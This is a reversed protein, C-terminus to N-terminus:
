KKKVDYTQLGMGFVSLIGLALGAPIGQEKMIQYIDNMSLPMLLKEPIQKVTVKDGVYDRGALLDVSTGVVPSLKSRLFRALVDASNGTGFPVKEGRIPLLKGGTTKTKGSALRSTLVTVQSIGALPDLRIKGMRIKGFDSSRPDVEVRGGSSIALSYVVGLGLLFRAYEKAIMMRTQMSGRYLPQGAALQFRSAVYRPAFFTTNLGVLANEKAGLNGRGTAVNVFNAVANLEIPTPKGNKSLTVVMADFSDARLKNLFTTYARQSAAVGPVKDAWRSMYVEEMQSLKQGHEAIYLKSKEYLPYNPRNRIELDVAFQGKESKLAKFMAPLSQVGRVPHAFVIFAGQRLVASLDMSTKISRSLNIAEGIGGGIKQIVSRNALRDRMVAEHYARIIKDLRYKLELAQADLEIERKPKVSFDKTALKQELEAMRNTMRTKLSQLAIQDPTKKPNAEQRLEDVFAKWEDRRNRAEVLEPTELIGPKEKKSKGEIAEKAYNGAAKEAARVAMAVRQEPFMERKKVTKLEGPKEPAFEAPREELADRVSALFDRQKKLEKAKADYEIGKGKPVQEGTEIENVIDSIQNTLRTKIADLSSKLQTEPDTTQIGYKKKAEEVQKILRREEDSPIRREVGTKLPPQRKQLDELKSIQQMQGKLDRLQVMVEEKSLLKYRGYGSIADMIDRKSIEFGANKVATHISDVLAEVTIFGSQVRNKAMKGLIVVATPDLGINLQGGLAKNLETVLGDFETSLEGKEIVRKVQRKELAVENKIREVAKTSELQTIKDGYEKIKANAEEIQKSLNEFKVRMEPTVPKGTEVRQKQLMATLSYDEDIMMKRAQLGAGQEYGTFRAATDNLNYVEEADALRVRAEAEAITDGKAKEVADMAAQHETKIRQRDITLIATEEPTIPRPKAVLEEALIRPDVEGTEIRRKGEDFAVTNSRRIEVEIESLGRAEREALTQANKIGTPGEPKALDLPDYIPKKEEKIIGLPDYQPVAKVEEIPKAIEEIPRFSRETIPKLKGKIEKIVGMTPKVLPAIALLSGAPDTTWSEKAAEGGYFGTPRGVFQRIGESLESVPEMFEQWAKPISGTDSTATALAKSFGKSLSSGVRVPFELLGLGTKAISEPVVRTVFDKVSEPSPTPEHLRRWQEKLYDPDSAIKEAISGPVLGWSEKSNLGLPDYAVNIALPDYTINLGLPDYM